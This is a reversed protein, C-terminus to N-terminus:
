EYHKEWVKLFQKTSNELHKNTMFVERNHILIDSQAGYWDLLKNIPMECLSQLEKFLYESREDPDSIIDYTEDIWPSFSKYGNRKMFDITQYNIMGLFPHYNLICKYIKESFFVMNTSMSWTEYVYSFMTDKYLKTDWHHFSDLTNFSTKDVLLPLKKLFSKINKKRRLPFLYRRRGLAGFHNFKTWWEDVIDDLFVSDKLTKNFETDDETACDSFTVEGANNMEMKTRDIDKFVSRIEWKPLICSVSGKDLLNFYNLGLHHFIRPTKLRRCLCLYHKITDINDKKYNFNDEFTDELHKFDSSIAKECWDLLIWNMPKKINKEECWEKYYEVDKHNASLFVINEIPFKEEEARKHVTEALHPHRGMDLVSMEDTGDIPFGEFSLDITVVVKGKRIHEKTHEKINHFLTNRETDGGCWLEPGGNTAIIYVFSENDKIFDTTDKHILTMKPQHHHELINVINHWANTPQYELDFLPLTDSDNPYIGDPSFGSFNKEIIKKIETQKSYHLYDWGFRINKM